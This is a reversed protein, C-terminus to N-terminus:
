QRHLLMVRGTQPCVYKVPQSVPRSIANAASKGSTKPLLVTDIVHIVGNSADIDTTLLKAGEITAGGPTVRVHLQGGQLSKASRTALLDTSFNRGAVVHFKLIDILQQKNEPKLLNEITGEPLKAFAEDTPAFVTLPADGSLAEVLGAAEAAALLTKFTGASTATAPINASSPLLVQDVVHIVGNSCAIDTTVVRSKDILVGDSGAQIEVRQGNVTGVASLKVVDSAMVKGPVVHYTLVAILQAKNEPKLLDAVTGDPLRAFAEDSPAFVTFPGPGQLTEVLDAATLAAALTKFSGAEVATSVIDRTTAESKDARVAAAGAMLAVAVLGLTLRRM